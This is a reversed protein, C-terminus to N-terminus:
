EGRGMGAEVDISFRVRSSSGGLSIDCGQQRNQSFFVRVRVSCRTCNRLLLPYSARHPPPVISSGLDCEVAGQRGRIDHFIRHEDTQEAAANHANSRM